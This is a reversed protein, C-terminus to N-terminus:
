NIIEKNDKVNKLMLSIRGMTLVKAKIVNFKVTDQEKKEEELKKIVLSFDNHSQRRSSNIEKPTVLGNKMLVYDLMEGIKDTLFPLSWTFLDLNNPLHFPQEVDKYQKINM